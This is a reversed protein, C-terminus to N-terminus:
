DSGLKSRWHKAIRTADTDGPAIELAAEAAALAEAGRKAKHHIEAEGVFSRREKPDLRQAERLIPLAREPDSDRLLLGLRMHGPAYDPHLRTLQEYARVADEPPGLRRSTGGWFRYYDKTVDTAQTFLLLVLCAGVHAITPVLTGRGRRKCSVILATAAIASLAIIAWRQAFPLFLLSGCGVVVAIGMAWVPLSTNRVRDWLPALKKTWTLCYEPICLLYVGVMFYSFLGIKFGSFQIILHFAIGGLCALPMLRRIHIAVALFAETAVVMKAFRSWGTFPDPSSGGLTNIIFDRAWEERVQLSVTKGAMWPSDGLKTVIAWFYVISVQVLLLRIPWNAAPTASEPDRQWDFCALVVLVLFLLYHHQYSDLHSSLYVTGFVAALSGTLLRSPPSLACLGAVYACFIFLVVVTARSLDPLLWDLATLHSVNFDGAGYRPAHSVQMWMDLCLVGFFAFRFLSLKAASFEGSFFPRNSIRELAADAKDLLARV